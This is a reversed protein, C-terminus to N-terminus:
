LFIILPVYENAETKLHYGSLEAIEALASRWKDILDVSYHKKHHDLADGFSRKQYRPDSPDVYYFVPIVLCGSTRKCTLIEVLENLCWRSHAYNESLVVVFIKSGRIANLLGSSIQGGKELEPDDMFTSIGAHVLASYLHSTFNTFNRRTDKGYFSLFVDWSSPPSSSSFSSSYPVPLQNSSTAM